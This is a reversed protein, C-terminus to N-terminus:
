ISDAIAEAREHWEESGVTFKAMLARVTEDDYREGEAPFFELLARRKQFSKAEDIATVAATTSYLVDYEFLEIPSYNGRPNSPDPLPLEAIVEGSRKCKIM